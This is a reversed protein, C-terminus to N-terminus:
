SRRARGSALLTLWFISLGILLTWRAHRNLFESDYPGSWALVAAAVAMYPM